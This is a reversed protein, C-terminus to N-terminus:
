RYFQETDIHKTHIRYMLNYPDSWRWPPDNGFPLVEYVQVGAAVTTYVLDGRAPTLPVGDGFHLDAAVIIFDLDTWEMRIGGFQDHTKLLKQGYVALVDVSDYGRAYTVLDAANQMLTPLLLTEIANKLINGPM